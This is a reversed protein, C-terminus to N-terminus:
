NRSFRKRIIPYSVGLVIIPIFLLASNIPAMNNIYELYSFTNLTWYNVIGFSVLYITGLITKGKPSFGSFVLAVILIIVNVFDIAVPILAQEGHALATSPTIVFLLIVTRNRTNM